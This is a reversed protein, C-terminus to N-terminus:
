LSIELGDHAVEIGHRELERREASRDDLIPNANHIHVLIKRRAALTSLAVIMGDDGAQPLHGLEEAALSSVGAERPADSHWYTGDVMVCDARQMWQLEAQGVRALTPAYFLSAGSALDEIMLAIQDGVTPDQAHASYRPAPAPIAMAHFRLQPQLELRFDTISVDGAVPLLHWQVGCYHQLAPLLPLGTTLDDFVCPTCYLDLPPGERLSLLGAVHDIQASMLVVAVISSHRQAAGSAPQLAAQTRLQQGLDPSANILVWRHGDSSVALSCQTRERFPMAGARTAACQSCNCNWQPSGGGAASGLVLIKM